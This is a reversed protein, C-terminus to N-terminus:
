PGPGPSDFRPNSRRIDVIKISRMPLIFQVYLLESSLRPILRHFDDNVGSRVALTAAADLLDQLVAADRELLM